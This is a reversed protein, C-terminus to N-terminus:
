PSLPQRVVIYGLNGNNRPAIDRNIQRDTVHTLNSLADYGIKLVDLKNRPEAPPHKAVHRVADVAAKIDYQSSKKSLSIVEAAEVLVRPKEFGFRTHHLEEAIQRASENTYDQSGPRRNIVTYELWTQDNMRPMM